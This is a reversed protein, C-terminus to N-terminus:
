KKQEVSDEIINFPVVHTKEDEKLEEILIVAQFPIMLHKSKRFTKRIEDDSPNIILKSGDPFILDKISVFYPHTLDLQKASLSIEKGKWKFYVRYVSM